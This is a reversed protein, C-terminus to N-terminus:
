PKYIKTFNVSAGGVQPQVGLNFKSSAFSMTVTKASVFGIGAGMVVDTAFHKNYAMRALGVYGGLAYAPVGVKWGYYTQLISATAFMSASHGSPFSMSNSGDPRERQISVKLAQVMGQSLLQARVIDRGVAQTKESHSAKGMGYAAVGAGTQFLFNGVISGGKFTTTSLEFGNNAGQQDWPALAVAAVGFYSVTKLTDYRFFNKYDGATLKFLNGDQVPSTKPLQTNPVVGVPTQAKPGDPTPVVLAEGAAATVTEPAQAYAPVSLACAVLASAVVRLFM